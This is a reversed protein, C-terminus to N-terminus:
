VEFMRIAHKEMTIGFCSTIKAVNRLDGGPCIYWKENRVELHGNLGVYTLAILRGAGPTKSSQINGPDAEDDM